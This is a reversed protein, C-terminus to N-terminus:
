RQRLPVGSGSCAMIWKVLIVPMIGGDTRPGLSRGIMDGRTHQHVGAASHHGPRSGEPQPSGTGPGSLDADELVLVAATLTSSRGIVHRGHIAV